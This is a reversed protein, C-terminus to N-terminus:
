YGGIVRKYRLARQLEKLRQDAEKKLQKALEAGGGAIQSVTLDGLKVNDVGGQQAEIAILLDAETLKIIPPQYKEPIASSDITDSTYQEVYNTSQEVMNDFVTGSISTPINTWGVVAGIYDTFSGISWNGTTM